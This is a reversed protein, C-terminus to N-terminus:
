KHIFRGTISDRTPPNELSHHTSHQSSNLIILNEIRNDTKIHNIHHVIEDKRLYRGIHKEMVLRHELVYGSGTAMKFPHNPSFVIIYGGPNTNRGGKWQYHKDGTLQKMRNTQRCSYSCFKGVGEKFHAGNISFEKHCENCELIYRFGYRKGPIKGKVIREM